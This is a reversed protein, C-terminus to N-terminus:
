CFPLLPLRIHGNYYFARKHDTASKKRKMLQFAFLALIGQFLQYLDYKFTLNLLSDCSGKLSSNPAIQQNCCMKLLYIM